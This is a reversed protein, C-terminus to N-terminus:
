IVFDAGILVNTVMNLRATALVDMVVSTIGMTVNKADMLTLQDMVRIATVV